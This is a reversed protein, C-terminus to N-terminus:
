LDTSDQSVVPGFIEEERELKEAIEHAEPLLGTNMWHVYREAGVCGFFYNKLLRLMDM